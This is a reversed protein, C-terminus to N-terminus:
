VMCARRWWSARAVVFVVVVVMGLVMLLVRWVVKRAMAPLAGSPVARSLLVGSATHFPM